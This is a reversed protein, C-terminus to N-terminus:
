SPQMVKKRQMDNITRTQSRTSVKVLDVRPWDNYFSNTLFERITKSRLMPTKNDTYMGNRRKTCTYPGRREISRMRLKGYCSCHWERRRDNSICSFTSPHGRIREPFSTCYTGSRAFIKLAAADGQHQKRKKVRGFFTVGWIFDEQHKDSKCRRRVQIQLTGAGASSKSWKRCVGRCTISETARLYSFIAVLADNPLEEASAM